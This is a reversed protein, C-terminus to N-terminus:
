ATARRLRHQVRRAAPVAFFLALPILLVAHETAAVVPPLLLQAALALLFVGSLFVPSALLLRCLARWHFFYQGDYSVLLDADPDPPFPWDIHRDWDLRDLAIRLWIPWGCARPWTASVESAPWDLFALYAVGIALSFGGLDAGAFILNTGLHLAIGAFVAAKRSRPFMLAVALAAELIVISWAFAPAMWASVFWEAVPHLLGAQIWGAFVVGHTWGPVRLQSVAAALYFFAVFGRALWPRDGRPQLGALLLLSGALWTEATFVPRSRVLVLLVLLGLTVSAARVFRNLLLLAGAACFLGPLAFRAAPIERLVDFAPWLPALPAGLHRTFGTAVLLVLFLKAMLLANPQMATGGCALPNWRPHPHGTLEGAM